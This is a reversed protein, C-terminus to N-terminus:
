KPHKDMNKEIDLLKLLLVWMELELRQSITGDWMFDWGFVELKSGVGCRFFLFFLCNMVKDM